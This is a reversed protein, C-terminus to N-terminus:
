AEKKRRRRRVMVILMCGAGLAFGAFGLAAYPERVGTSAIQGGGGFAPISAAASLCADVAIPTNLDAMGVLLDFAADSTQGREGSLWTSVALDLRVGFVQGPALDRRPAVVTCEKIAGISTAPFGGAGFDTAALTLATGFETDDVTVDSVAVMISIPTSRANRLH